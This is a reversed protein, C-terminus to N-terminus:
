GSGSRGARSRPAASRGRSTARSPRRAPPRGAWPAASGTRRGAWATAASGPSAPRSSCTKRLRRALAISCAVPVPEISTRDPAGVALGLDVDAVVARADRRLVHGAQELRVGPGTVRVLVPGRARATRPARSRSPGRRRSRRRGRSDAVPGREGDAQRGLGGTAPGARRRPSGRTDHDPERDDLVMRGEGVPEGGQDPPRGVDLDDPRRRIDVGAARSMSRSAGSTTRHSM